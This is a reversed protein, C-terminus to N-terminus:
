FCDDDEDCDNLDPDGGQSYDLDDADPEQHEENITLLAEVLDMSSDKSQLADKGLDLNANDPDFNTADEESMGLHDQNHFMLSNIMDDLGQNHPTGSKTLPVATMAEENFITDCIAEEVSLTEKLSLEALEFDNLSSIEENLINFM